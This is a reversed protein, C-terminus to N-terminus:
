FIKLFLIHKSNLKVYAICIETFGRITNYIYIYIYINKYKEYINKMYIYIYIYKM